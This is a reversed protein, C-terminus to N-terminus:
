LNEKKYLYYTTTTILVFTNIIVTITVGLAIVVLQVEPSTREVLFAMNNRMLLIPVYFITPIIVIACTTWFSSFVMKFNQILAAIIKKREVVIIPVVYALLITIIICFIFQTFPIGVMVAKKIWFYIGDTSQIKLARKIVLEYGWNLVEFFLFSLISSFFIHIYSPFTKKLSLKFNVREDNNAAAVMHAAVALLFSGFLLYVFMQVYYFLKPLLVLNMPYHLYQEGWIRGVIPDFFVNLPVRNAFFLLELILFNIFTLWILPFYIEEHSRLTQAAFRLLTFPSHQKSM